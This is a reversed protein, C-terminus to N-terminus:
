VANFRGWLLGNLALSSPLKGLGASTIGFFELTMQSPKSSNRCAFQAAGLDAAVRQRVLRHRFFRLSLARSVSDHLGCLAEAGQGAYTGSAAAWPACCTIFAKSRPQWTQPQCVPRSAEEKAWTQRPLKAAGRM